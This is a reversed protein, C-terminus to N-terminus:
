AQSEGGEEEQATPKGEDEGEAKTEGGEKETIIQGDEGTVVNGNEDTVPKGGGGGGSGGDVETTNSDSEKSGESDLGHEKSKEGSTKETNKENDTEREEEEPSDDFTPPFKPTVFITTTPPGSKWKSGNTFGALPMTFTAKEAHKYCTCKCNRDSRAIDFNFDLCKRVCMYTKAYDQCARTMTQQFGYRRAGAADPIKTNNEFNQVDSSNEFESLDVVTSEQACIMLFNITFFTLVTCM